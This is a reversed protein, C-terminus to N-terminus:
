VVLADLLSRTRATLRGGSPFALLGAAVLPVALLYGVDAVSPFPVRGSGLDYVGWAAEGFSWSGLGVAVLAWGARDRRAGRWAAVTCAVTAAAAAVFTGVDDVWVVTHHGGAGSLVDA